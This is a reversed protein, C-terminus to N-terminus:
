TKGYMITCYSTMNKISQIFSTMIICIQTTQLIKKPIWFERREKIIGRERERERERDRQRERERERERTLQIHPIHIGHKNTQNAQLM